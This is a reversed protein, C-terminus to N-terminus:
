SAREARVIRLLIALLAGVRDVYYELRDVYVTSAELKLFRWINGTTVV